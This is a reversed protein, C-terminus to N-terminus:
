LVENYVINHTYIGAPSNETADHWADLALVRLGEKCGVRSFAVYLQGHTFVPKPLYVGVKKFTQGQSKNITMAYAARVPFQLRNLTFPYHAADSPIFTIRPICVLTVKKAGTAVKAQILRPTLKTIILRTGNALGNSLNRMLIIPAGVQLCLEHPPVGSMNLSNLFETPYLAVHEPDSVSDASKYVRRDALSGDPNTLVFNDHMFKNIEDVDANLPTLIAREVIYDSREDFVHMQQFDGYIEQILNGVTATKPDEGCCIDPPLLIANEHIGDYNTETGEGICKLYNAFEQQLAAHQHADTGGMALLTQVRM